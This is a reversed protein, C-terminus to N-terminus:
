QDLLCFFIQLGIIESYGTQLSRYNISVLFLEYKGWIKYLLQNLPIKVM